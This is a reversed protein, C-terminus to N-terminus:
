EKVVADFFRDEDFLSNEKKCFRNVAYVAAYFGERKADCWDSYQQADKYALNLEGALANFHKKSMAM